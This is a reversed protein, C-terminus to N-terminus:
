YTGRMVIIAAFATLMIVGFALATLDSRRPNM